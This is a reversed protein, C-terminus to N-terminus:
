SVPGLKDIKHAPSYYRWYTNLTVPSISLSDKATQHLMLYCMHFGWRDQFRPGMEISIKVTKGDGIATANLGTNDSIEKMLNVIDSYSYQRDDLRKQWTFCPCGVCFPDNNESFTFKVPGACMDYGHPKEGENCKSHRLYISRNCNTIIISPAHENEPLSVNKFLSSFGISQVGIEYRNDIELPIPFRNVFSTLKNDPYEKTGANSIVYFITEENM